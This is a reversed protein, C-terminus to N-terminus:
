CGGHVSVGIAGSNPTTLLQTALSGLEQGGQGPETEPLSYGEGPGDPLGPPCEGPVESCTAVGGARGVAALRVRSSGWGLCLFPGRGGPCGLKRERAGALHPRECIQPNPSSTRAPLCTGGPMERIHRLLSVLRAELLQKADVPVEGVRAPGKPSMGLTPVPQSTVNGSAYLAPVLM